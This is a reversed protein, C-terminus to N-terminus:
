ANIEKAIGLIEPGFDAEKSSPAQVMMDLMGPNTDLILNAAMITRGTVDSWAAKEKASMSAPLNPPM